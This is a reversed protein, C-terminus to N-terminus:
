DLDSGQESGEPSSPLDTVPQAPATSHKNYRYLCRTCTSSGAPQAHLRQFHSVGYRWGCWATWDRNSTNIETTCRYHCCNSDRNLIHTAEVHASSSSTSPHPPTQQPQQTSQLPLACPGFMKIAIQSTRLLPTEQVYRRIASSGWRGILMITVVDIDKRAMM